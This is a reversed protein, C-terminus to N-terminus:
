LHQERLGELAHMIVQRPTGPDAIATGLVANVKNSPREARGRHREGGHTASIDVYRIANDVM